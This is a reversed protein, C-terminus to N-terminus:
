QHKPRSCARRRWTTESMADLLEHDRRQEGACTLDECWPCLDALARAAHQQLRTLESM